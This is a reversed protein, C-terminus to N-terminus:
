VYIECNACYWQDRDKAETLRGHCRLCTAATIEEFLQQLRAALEGSWDTYAEGSGLCKACRREGGCYGCTGDKCRPMPCEGSGHCEGCRPVAQGTKAGRCSPCAGIGKCKRCEGAGECAACWGIGRCSACGELAAVLMGNADHLFLNDPVLRSVRSVEKAGARKLALTEEDAAYLEKRVDSKLARLAMPIEKEYCRDCAHPEIDEWAHKLVQRPSEWVRGWSDKEELTFDRQETWAIRYSKFKLPLTFEGPCIDCFQRSCLRCRHLLNTDSIVNSCQPCYPFGYSPQPAAPAPTSTSPASYRGTGTYPSSGSYGSDPHYYASYPNEGAATWASGQTRAREAVLEMEVQSAEEASLGSVARVDELFAREKEDIRGDDDLARAACQRYRERSERKLEQEFVTQKAPADEGTEV